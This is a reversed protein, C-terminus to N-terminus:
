PLRLLDNGFEGFFLAPMNNHPVQKEVLDVDLERLHQAFKPVRGGYGDKGWNPVWLVCRIRSKVGDLVTEGFGGMTPASPDILGLLEWRATNVNRYVEIGGRSFGCLSYSSVNPSLRGGVEDLCRRCDHTYRKPLIFLLKQRLPAPIQTLLWAGELQHLGGYVVVAASRGQDPLNVVSLDLDVRKAM